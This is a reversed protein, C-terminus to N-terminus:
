PKAAVKKKTSPTKKGPAHAQPGMYPKGEDLAKARDLHEQLKPLTDSAFQQLKPDEARESEQRFLDVAKEHDDVMIDVYKDTAKKGDLKQLEQKKQKASQSMEKPVTAGMQTALAKLDENVKTHQDIMMQAFERVKPDKVKEMAVKSLEVEAMGALAAEDVFQQGEQSIKQGMQEPQDSGEMMEGESSEEPTMGEEPYTEENMGGQESTPQTQGPTASEDTPPESQSTNPQCGLLLLGCAGVLTIAFNHIRQM